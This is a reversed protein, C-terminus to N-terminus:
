SHILYSRSCCFTKDERQNQNLIQLLDVVGSENALMVAAICFVQPSNSLISAANSIDETNWGVNFWYVALPNISDLGLLQTINNKSRDSADAWHMQIKQLQDIHKSLLKHNRVRIMFIEFHNSCTESNIPLDVGHIAKFFGSIVACALTHGSSCGLDVFDYEMEGQERKSKMGAQDIESLIQVKARPTMTGSVGEINASFDPFCKNV